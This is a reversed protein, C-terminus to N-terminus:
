EDEELLERANKEYVQLGQLMQPCDEFARKARALYDRVEEGYHQEAVSRCRWALGRTELFDCVCALEELHQAVKDVAGRYIAKAVPVDLFLRGFREGSSGEGANGAKVAADWVDEDIMAFLVPRGSLLGADEGMVVNREFVALLKEINGVGTRKYPEDLVFEGSGLRATFYAHILETNEDEDIMDISGLRNYQGRIPLAIPYHAVGTRGLLVLVSRSGKLSVGSVACREDYLGM